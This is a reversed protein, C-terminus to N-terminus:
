LTTRVGLAGTVTNGVRQIRYLAVLDEREPFYNKVMSTVVYITGEKPEPINHFQKVKAKMIPVGEISKGVEEYEFDMGTVINSPPIIIEEGDETLIKATHRLRSEIKILKKDM